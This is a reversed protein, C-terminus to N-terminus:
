IQAKSQHPVLLRAAHNHLKNGRHFNNIILEHIDSCNPTPLFQRTLYLSFRM